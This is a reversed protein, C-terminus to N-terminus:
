DETLERSLGRLVVVSSSGFASESVLVQDLQASSSVILYSVM